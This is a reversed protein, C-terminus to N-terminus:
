CYLQSKNSNRLTRSRADLDKKSAFDSVPKVKQDFVMALHERLVKTQEASMEKADTLDFFGNLWYCFDDSKMEKDSM